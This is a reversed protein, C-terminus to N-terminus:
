NSPCPVEEVKVAAAKSALREVEAMAAKAAARDGRNLAQKADCMRQEAERWITLLEDTM